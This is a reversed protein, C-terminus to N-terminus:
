TKSKCVLQVMKNGEFRIKEKVKRILYGSKKKEFNTYFSHLDAQKAQLIKNPHFIEPMPHTPKELIGEVFHKTHTADVGHGINSVLNVNPMISLGNHYWQCFSWQYDWTDVPNTCMMDFVHWWYDFAQLDFFYKKMKKRMMQADYDNLNYRYKAWARRWTAWGWIHGYTSFYYSAGGVTGPQFNNGGITFVQETDRYRELLESCYPFFDPHPICDDELIIGEEVQEFFWTIAGSVHKGCGQNETQFRTHIQCEWDISEIVYRRVSNCLASEGSKSTRPGDAAIYLNSPRVQRLAGIAQKLPEKRNFILLLVPTELIL